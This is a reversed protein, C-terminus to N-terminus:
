PVCGQGNPFSMSVDTVWHAESAAGTGATFGWHGSFPVYGVIPFDFLYNIADVWVSLKGAELRVRLRHNASDHVNPIAARSLTVPTAANQVVALFPVAPENTNLFTDIIVAYGALGGVGFTTRSALSVDFSLALPM